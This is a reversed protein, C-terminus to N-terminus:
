PNSENSFSTVKETLHPDLDRECPVQKRMLLCIRSQTYCILTSDVLLNGEFDEATLPVGFERSMSIVMEATPSSITGSQMVCVSQWQWSCCCLYHGIVNLLLEPFHGGYRQHSWTESRWGNTKSWNMILSFVYCSSNYTCHFTYVLLQIEHHLGM